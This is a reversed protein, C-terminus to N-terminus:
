DKRGSAFDFLGGRRIYWLVNKFFNGHFGTGGCDTVKIMDEASIFSDENNKRIRIAPEVFFMITFNIDKCM